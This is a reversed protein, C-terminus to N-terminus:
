EKSANKNIDLIYKDLETMAQSCEFIADDFDINYAFNAASDLFDYINNLSAKIKILRKNTM